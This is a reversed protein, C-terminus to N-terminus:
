VTEKSLSTLVHRLHLSIGWSMSELRESFTSLIKAESLEALNGLGQFSIPGGSQIWEDVDDFDSWTVVTRKSASSPINLETGFKVIAWFTLAAYFTCLAESPNEFTFRILLANLRGAHVLISRAGVVDDSIRSSLWSRANLKSEETGSKGAAIKVKDLFGTWTFQLHGLHSLASISVLPPTPIYSLYHFCVALQDLLEQPNHRFNAPFTLRYLSPKELSQAPCLSDLSSADSCLRYLTHAIISLGFPNLPQPLKGISLLRKLVLCFDSSGSPSPASDRHTRPSRAEWDDEHWPLSMDIENISFHPSINLLASIQMDYLYIGWGLRCREEDKVRAREVEETSALAGRRELERVFSFGPRLLHMRRAATVLGGRSIEAHHYLMRSGCFLGFISQLLWAQVVSTDFMVQRDSERLYIIARRSLENLTVAIPAMGNKSYTAGIAAMALLLVPSHEVSQFTSRCLVPLTEHFHRFYLNICISLTRTSPFATVDVAPWHAQHATTILSLIAARTSNDVHDLYAGQLSPQPGSCTNVKSINLREDDKSPRYVHPWPSDAPQADRIIRTSPVDAVARAMRHEDSNANTLSHPWCAPPTDPSAGNLDAIMDIGGDSHNWGLYSEFPEIPLDYFQGFSLLESEDPGHSPIIGSLNGALPTYDSFFAPQSIDINTSSTGRSGPEPSIAPGEPVLSLAPDTEIATTPTAFGNSQSLTLPIPTTCDGTRYSCSRDSHLCRRCTTGPQGDCRLKSAVCSKCSVKRAKRTPNSAEGHLAAHRTMVDRRTFRKQCVPCEHRADGTHSREHRQLHEAKGFSRRCDHWSCTFNRKM